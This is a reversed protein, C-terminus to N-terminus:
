AASPHRRAAPSSAGPLRFERVAQALEASQAQLGEVAANTQEFMAASQQTSQDLDTTTKSIETVSRATRKSAEAIDRIRETTGTVAEAIMALAEGTQNVLSVGRGVQEGSKNILAEIERSADSSRSALARVETAVVAFGRGAEGARAAEVGANLALLNTQFAIGDIVEIIKRIAEASEEIQQMATVAENVVVTGSSARQDIDEMSHRAAEAAEESARTTTVMEEIAASTQALSSANEETRQAMEAAAGGIECAGRNVVEGTERIGDITLALSQACLNAGNAIDLYIGKYHQHTRYTLDGDALAQLARQIDSLAAETSASVTNLGECLTAYVGTKDELRLSHSFDGRTWANVVQSIEEAAREERARRDQEAAREAKARSAEAELTHAEEAARRKEEEREQEMRQAAEGALRERERLTDRFVQVAQQLDGLENRTSWTPMPTNLDGAGLGDMARKLDVVRAVVRNSLLLFAAVFGMLIGVASIAGVIIAIRGTERIRTLGADTLEDIDSKLQAMTNEYNAYAADFLIVGIEIDDLRDAATELRQDALAKLAEIGEALQAMQDANAGRIEALRAVEAASVDFATAVAGEDATAPANLGRTLLLNAQSLQSRAEGISVQASHRAGLSPSAAAAGLLSMVDGYRADFDAQPQDSAASSEARIEIREEAQTRLASLQGRAQVLLAGFLDVKAETDEFLSAFGAELDDLLADNEDFARWIGPPVDTATSGLFEELEIHVGAIGLRAEEVLQTLPALKEGLVRSSSALNGTMVVSATTVALVCLTLALFGIRLQMRLSRAQLIWKM